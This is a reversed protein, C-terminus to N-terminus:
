FPSDSVVNYKHCFDSELVYINPKQNERFVAIGKKLNRTLIAKILFLDLMGNKDNTNDHHGVRKRTLDLTIHLIHFPEWLIEM